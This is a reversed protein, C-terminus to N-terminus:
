NVYKRRRCICSRAQESARESAKSLAGFSHGALGLVMGSFLGCSCGIYSVYFIFIQLHTHDLVLCHEGGFPVYCFTNRFALVSPTEESTLPGSSSTICENPVSLSSSFFSRLPSHPWSLRSSGNHKGNRILDLPRLHRKYPPIPLAKTM